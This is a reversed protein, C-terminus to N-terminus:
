DTKSDDEAPPRGVTEWLKQDKEEIRTQRYAERRRIQDEARAAPLKAVLQEFQTRDKTTVFPVAKRNALKFVDGSREQMYPGISPIMFACEWNGGAIGTQPNFTNAGYRYCEAGAALVKWEGALIEKNGPYWLWIRGDGARYSVQPGHANFSVVTLNSMAQMAGADVPGSAFRQLENIGAQTPRNSRESQCGGLALTAILAFMFPSSFHM